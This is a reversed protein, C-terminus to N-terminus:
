TSTTTSSAAAPVVVTSSGVSILLAFSGIGRGVILRFAWWLELHLKCQLLELVVAMGVVGDKLM